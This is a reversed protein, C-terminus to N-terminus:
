KSLKGKPPEIVIRKIRNEVSVKAIVESDNIKVTLKSKIPVIKISDGLLKELESEYEIKLNGDQMISFKASSFTEWKPKLEEKDPDDTKKVEKNYYDKLEELSTPWRGEKMYYASAIGVVMGDQIRGHIEYIAIGKGLDGICQEMNQASVCGFMLLLSAIDSIIVWAVILQKKNM